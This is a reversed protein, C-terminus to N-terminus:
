KSDSKSESTEGFYENITSKLLKEFENKSPEKDEELYGEEKLKALFKDMIENSIKEIEKDIDKQDERVLFRKSFERTRLLTQVTNRITGKLINRFYEEKNM